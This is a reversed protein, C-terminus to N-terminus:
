WVIRCNKNHKERIIKKAEEYKKVRNSWCPMYKWPKKYAFKPLWSSMTGNEIIEFLYEDIWIGKGGNRVMSLWLDWDQFRKISEDWRVVDRRRIMSTTHIYNCQKLAEIDFVQAPMKKKGIKHNCYVFSVDKHQELKNVMKSLMYPEAMIDADWFIVYNGKSLEFGKNRASPAGKNEQRFWKIRSDNFIEFQFNFISPFSGDDVVIIEINEYDQAFVSELTKEFVEIRNYVPIIISVLQTM